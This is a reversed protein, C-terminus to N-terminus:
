GSIVGIERIFGLFGAVIREIRSIQPPDFDSRVCRDLVGDRQFRDISPTFPNFRLDPCVGDGGLSPLSKLSPHRGTEM